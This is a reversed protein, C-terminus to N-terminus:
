RSIHHGAILFFKDSLGMPKRRALLGELLGALLFVATTALFVKPVLNQSYLEVMNLDQWLLVLGAAIFGPIMAYAFNRGLRYIRECGSASQYRRFALFYFGSHVLGAVILAGLFLDVQYLEYNRDGIFSQLMVALGLFLGSRFIFEVVLVVWFPKGALEDKNKDAAIKIEAARPPGVLSLYGIIFLLSRIFSM